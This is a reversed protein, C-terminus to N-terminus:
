ECDCDCIESIANTWIFSIVLWECVINYKLLLIKLIYYTYTDIIYTHTYLIYTHIYIHIHIHM